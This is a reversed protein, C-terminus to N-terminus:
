MSKLCYCVHSPCYHLLRESLSLGFDFLSTDARKVFIVDDIWGFQELMDLLALRGRASIEILTGEIGIVPNVELLQLLMLKYAGVSIGGENVLIWLIRILGELGVAAAIGEDAVDVVRFDGIVIHLHELDAHIELDVFRGEVLDAGEALADVLFLHVLEVIILEEFLGVKCLPVLEVVVTDTRM